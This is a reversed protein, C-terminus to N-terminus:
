NKTIRELARAASRVYLALYAREETDLEEGWEHPGFLVLASLPPDSLPFGLGGHFEDAFMGKVLIAGNPAGAVVALAPTDASIVLAHGVDGFAGAQQFLGSPDSKFLAAVSLELLRTPERVLAQFVDEARKAGGFRGANQELALRTEERGRYVARRSWQETVREILIGLLASAAALGYTTLPTEHPGSSAREVSKKVIEALAAASSQSMLVLVSRRVGTRRRIVRWTVTANIVFFFVALSLTQLADNVPDSTPRFFSSY